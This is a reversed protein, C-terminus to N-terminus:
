ETETPEESVDQDFTRNVEQSELLKLGQILLDQDAYWELEKRGPADEPESCLRYYGRRSAPLAVQFDKLLEFAGHTRNIGRYFLIQIRCKRFPSVVKNKVVDVFSNVGIIRKEIKPHKIKGRELLDVRVGSQYKLGKGGGSDSQRFFDGFIATKHSAIIYLLKPDDRLVPRIRRMGLHIMKARQGADAKDFGEEKERMSMLSGLSDLAIVIRPEPGFAKRLRDHTFLARDFHEDVTDSELYFRRTSNMDFWSEYETTYSHETDDIIAFGGGKVCDACVQCIEISKGTSPDGFIEVVRGGPFGGTLPRGSVSWNMAYSGTDFFVEPSSDPEHIVGEGFKKEISEVIASIKREEAKKSDHKAASRKKGM